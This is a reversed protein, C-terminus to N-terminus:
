GERYVEGRSSPPTVRVFRSFKTSLVIKGPLTGLSSCNGFAKETGRGGEEIGAAAADLSVTGNLSITLSLFLRGM